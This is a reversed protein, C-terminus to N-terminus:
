TLGMLVERRTTEYQIKRGDLITSHKIILSTRGGLRNNPTITGGQNGMTLLEPGREGVLYSTRPSVPGGSARAGGVLVAGGPVVQRIANKLADGIISGQESGTLTEVASTLEKVKDIATAAWSVIRVLIDWVTKINPYIEDFVDGLTRVVQRAIKIGKPLNKTLWEVFKTAYPLLRKGLREAVDNLKSKLIDLKGSFTEGAARASDGFEKRLEKLIVRQAGATDGTKVLKNIVAEQKETFAVGVRRLASMGRVPDNLAKGLQIAQSQIDSGLAVSMDALTKTAKDFIKNGEGAKNQINTFTLLINEGSQVVEDDLGSYDRIQGALEAVDDATVKASKGTSKLVADTQAAVKQAESAQSLAYGIGAGVAGVVAGVGYAIARAKGAVSTLKGSLTTSSSGMGRMARQASSADGLITVKLIRERAM